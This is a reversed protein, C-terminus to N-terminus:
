NLATPAVEISGLDLAKDATLTVRFRGKVWDKKAELARESGKGREHWVQFEIEEGAPLNAITFSGNAATVAFYPDHRPVVYAKEWAHLNCSVPVPIPQQARFHHRRDEASAIQPRLDVEGPATLNVNHQVEDRNRIVLTQSTRLPVVHGHFRCAQLELVVDVQAVARYSDHVRSTRRAFVVVNRLGRSQADVLLSEDPIPQADCVAADKGGTALNKPSPPTGQYVFRGTLTAWGTGTATQADAAGAAGSAIALTTPNRGPWTWCALTGLVGLAAGVALTHNTTSRM